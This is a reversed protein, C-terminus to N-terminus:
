TEIATTNFNYDIPEQNRPHILRLFLLIRRLVSQSMLFDWKADVCRSGYYGHCCLQNDPCGWDTFCEMDHNTIYDADVCIGPKHIKNSEKYKNKIMVVLKKWLFVLSGTNGQPGFIAMFTTFGFLSYIFSIFIISMVFVGFQFILQIKSGLMFCAAGFTTLAGSAVSLGMSQLMSKIRGERESSTSSRYAEAFHVVYDVSLGVVMCLNLSEIVGLKLGTLPILGVVCTIVLGIVVTALLGIVFNMSTLVLIPLAICLGIVLGNVAYTVLIEQIKVWHWALRTLQFGGKMTDPMLSIENEMLNEWAQYVPIGSTYGLTQVNMTTGIKVVIFSLKTGYFRVSIGNSFLKTQRPVKVRGVLNYYKEYDANSVGSYSNSLWYDIGIEFWNRFDTPLSRIYFTPHAAMFKSINGANLPLDLSMDSPYISRTEEKTLFNQLETIFCDIDLDRTSPNRRIRLKDVQEPSLNRLRRCLNKLALQAQETSPNFKNDFVAKGNCKVSSKSNCSGMDQEKMGWLLYVDSYEHDMKAQFSKYHMRYATDYNHSSIFLQVYDANPEVRSAWVAFFITLLLFFIPIGIKVPKWMVFRYFKGVFFEVVHFSKESYKHNSSQLTHNMNEDKTVTKISESKQQNPNPEKTKFCLRRLKRSLPEIKESYLMVSTPFYILDFLYNVSVLLASFIGFTKVPLLPSFSTALFAASTTLSTIFTTKAARKYFESLRHAKSPFQEHATLRWTDYFVFVDDAGIGIIIFMAAMHFFGFYIYGFCYRYIFNALLYSTVISYLGMFTIWLSGTQIWMVLVIFIGSGAGWWMDLLAQDTLANIILENSIYFVEMKDKLDVDKIHIVLSKMTKLQLNKRGNKNTGHGFHLLIRTFHSTAGSNCPNYGNELYLKMDNSTNQNRYAECMILSTNEFSPSHFLHSQSLKSGDFYRLVSWPKVCSGTIETLCYKEYGDASFLKQEASQILKLNNKSYINGSNVQFIVELSDTIRGRDWFGGKTGENTYRPLYNKIDERYLFARSRTWVPDYTLFLPLGSFDIPFVDYGNVFLGITACLTTIHISFAIVSIYFKSFRKFVM